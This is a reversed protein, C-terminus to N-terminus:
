ERVVASINRKGVKIIHRFRMGEKVDFPPIIPFIRAFVLIGCIVFAFTFAVLGMEVLSPSYAGWNFSLETRRSLGPIIILFRELWMGVNVLITTFFM